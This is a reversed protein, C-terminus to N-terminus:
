YGDDSCFTVTQWTHLQVPFGCTHKSRMHVRTLTFIMILWKATESLQGCCSGFISTRTRTLYCLEDVNSIREKAAKPPEHAGSPVWGEETTKANLVPHNADSNSTM